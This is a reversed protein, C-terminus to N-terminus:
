RSNLTGPKTISSNLSQVRIPWPAALAQVEGATIERSFVMVDDLTFDGGINLPSLNRQLPLTPWEAVQAGNLYFRDFTNGHTVMVHHWQGFPM